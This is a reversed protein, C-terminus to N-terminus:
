QNTKKEEEEVRKQIASRIKVLDPDLYEIKSQKKFRAIEDQVKQRLLIATIGDEVDEFRKPGITQTDILKVIHWGFKTKFPGGVEGAKLGFVVDSFNPVMEEKYFYGLDGGNAAGEGKSFQRALAGFNEGKSVRAFLQDAEQQSPVVIQLARARSRPKSNKKEREYVDRVMKKTILPRIKEAFYAERLAKVQYYRLRKRYADTKNIQAGVAAQALLHRELLYDVIFPYRAKPPLGGIHPLVEDRAFGIESARIEQGNVTFVVADNGSSQAAAPGALTLGFACATLAAM